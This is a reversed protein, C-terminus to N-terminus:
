LPIYRKQRIQKHFKSSIGCLFLKLLKNWSFLFKLEIKCCFDMSQKSCVAPKSIDIGSCENWWYCIASNLTEPLIKLRHTEFNWTKQLISIFNSSNYSPSTSSHFEISFCTFNMLYKCGLFSIKIPPGVFNLINLTRLLIVIHLILHM